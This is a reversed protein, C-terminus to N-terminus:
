PPTARATTILRITVDTTPRLADPGASAGNSHLIFAAISEYTETTLSPGGYPMSAAIYDFLEKTTRSSWTEKFATGALAPIESNGSLDPMHCSACSKAYAAKGATVQRATFVSAAPKLHGVASTRAAQVEIEVLAGAAVLAAVQVTSRAPKNPQDPTGFFKAYAANMGAFDLKNEMAPDAAMYVRMMVIDGMGLGQAKLLNQIKGFTSESQAQTNGYVAPIGKARDAPTVPTPLQGSLYLMDGVWVGSAIGAGESQIRTVTQATAPMSCGAAVVFAVVLTKMRM